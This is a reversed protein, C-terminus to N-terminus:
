RKCHEIKLVTDVRRRKVVKDIEVWGGMNRENVLGKCTVVAHTPTIILFIDDNKRKLMNVCIKMEYGSCGKVINTKFNHQELCSLMERERNTSRQIISKAAKSRLNPNLM